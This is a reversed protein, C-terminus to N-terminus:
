CLIARLLPIGLHMLRLLPVLPIEAHLCMNAHVALRLQNMGHRGRRGIDMVTLDQRFQQMSFFCPHPTIGGITSLAVHDSRVRGLGLTEDLRFRM